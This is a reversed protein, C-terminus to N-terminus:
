GALGLVEGRRSASPGAPVRNVVIGTPVQPFRSLAAIARRM